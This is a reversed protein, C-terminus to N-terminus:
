ISDKNVTPKIIVRKGFIEILKNPLDEGFIDIAIIKGNPDILFNTPLATVNYDEVAKSNWQKFDCVHYWHFKHVKITNQWREKDQDLSVQVVDFKHYYKWYWKNVNYNEQISLNSWSAWFSILIYKGKLTSLNIIEGNLTQINLIEPAQMGIGLYGPPPLNNKKNEKLTNCFKNMKKVHLSNPYKKSLVSDVMFYYRTDEKIDFVPKKDTIYQSLAILSVLSSKNKNVFNVSFEKQKNYIDFFEADIIPKVSDVRNTQYFRKYIAGLSDIKYKTKYLHQELKQILNSETSGKVKYTTVIDNYDATLVIQEASDILLLIEYDAKTRVIYFLKKSSLGELIFEGNKNFEVSDIAILENPEKQYLSIIEGKEVNSFKGSITFNVQKPAETKCSFLLLIIVFYFTKKM